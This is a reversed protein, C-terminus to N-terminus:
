PEYVNPGRRAKVAEWAALAEARTAEPRDAHFARMFRNFEFQPAIETPPGAAALAHWAELAEAYTARGAHERCFRQFPVTFRFGPGLQETFWDRLRQDCRVAEPILAHPTLPQVDPVTPRRRAVPVATGGLRGLVTATLEAKSGSRPLDEARCFASLEERLWYWRSFEEATLDRTLAPRTAADTM